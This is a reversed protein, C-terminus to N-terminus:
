DQGPRLRLSQDISQSKRSPSELREADLM